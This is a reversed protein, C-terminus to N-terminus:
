FSAQPQIKKRSWRLGTLTQHHPLLTARPPPCPHWGTAALSSSSIQSDGSTRQLVTARNVKTQSAETWGSCNKDGLCRGSHRSTPPTPHGTAWCGGKLPSRAPTQSGFASLLTVLLAATLICWFLTGDLPDRYLKLLQCLDLACDPSLLQVAKHTVSLSM